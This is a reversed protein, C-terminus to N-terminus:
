LPDQHSASSKDPHQNEPQDEPQNTKAQHGSYSPPPALRLPSPKKEVGPGRGSLSPNTMFYEQASFAPDPSKSIRTYQGSADLTWSQQNDKLNALMIQEMVQQRVTPNEL